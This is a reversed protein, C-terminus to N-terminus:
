SPGSELGNMGTGTQSDPMVASTGGVFRPMRPGGNEILERIEGLDSEFLEANVQLYRWCSLGTRERLRRSAEQAREIWELAAGSDGAAWYAIAMCQLYNPTPEEGASSGDLEVVRRFTEAEIAGNVGWTAMGYNFADAIDLEDITQGHDRFM